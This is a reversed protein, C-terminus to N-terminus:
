FRAADKIKTPIDWSKLAYEWVLYLIIYSAIGIFVFWWHDSHISTFWGVGYSIAATVARRRNFDSELKERQEKEWIDRVARVRTQMHHGQYPRKNM